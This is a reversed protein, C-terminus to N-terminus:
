RNYTRVPQGYIPSSADLPKPYLPDKYGSAILLERMQKQVLSPATYVSSWVTKEFEDKVALVFSAIQPLQFRM